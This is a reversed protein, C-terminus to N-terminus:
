QLFTILEKQIYQKVEEPISVAGNDNLTPSLYHEGFNPDAFQQGLITVPNKYRPRFHFHVQPTEGEKYANNMLCSYNFMTAGYQEKFFAELKAILVFFDQQEEPSLEPLSQRPEKTKIVLRGLYRQDDSLVIKWYHTEFFYGNM